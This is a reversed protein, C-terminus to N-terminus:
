GLVGEATSSYFDLHADLSDRGSGMSVSAFHTGGLEAWREAMAATDAPSAGGLAIFELGFGDLSQGTEAAYERLSTLAGHVREENGAFMFGDGHDVGRRFAPPSFGGVWVPIQRTPPPVLALRDVTDFDGDHSIVGGGWLSRLLGIQEDARRGRTSFDEGLADYEVHNWGVGVGMRLRGGSLLDVDAAQRAVLLTQRQPLILVGTAFEIRETIAALHAFMVFPDHFPDTEHYPGWLKPERDAHVAGGVHDYALLYDYGLEETARGIARVADPDGDLEIQPYVVGFKM